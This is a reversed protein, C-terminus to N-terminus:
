FNKVEILSINIKALFQLLELLSKRVNSFNIKRNWILMKKSPSPRNRPSKKEFKWYHLLIKLFNNDKKMSDKMNDDEDNCKVKNILLINETLPSTVDNNQLINFPKNTASSNRSIRSTKMKNIPSDDFNNLYLDFFAKEKNGKKKMLELNISSRLSLRSNNVGNLEKNLNVKNNKPSIKRISRKMKQAPSFSPISYKLFSEKKINEENKFVRKIREQYHKEKQFHELPLTKKIASFSREQYEPKMQDSFTTANIKKFNLQKMRFAKNPLKLIFKPNQLLKKKPNSSPQEFSQIPTSITKKPQNLFYPFVSPRIETPIAYNTYPQKIDRDYSSELYAFTKPHKSTTDSPTLYPCSNLFFPKKSAKM